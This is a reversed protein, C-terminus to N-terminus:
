PVGRCRRVERGGTDVPRRADARVDAVVQRLDPAGSGVIIQLQLPGQARRTQLLFERGRESRERAALFFRHRFILDPRAEVQAQELGPVRVKGGEVEGAEIGFLVVRAGEANGGVGRELPEVREDALQAHGSLVLRRAPAGKTDDGIVAEGSYRVIHVQVDRKEVGAQEGHIVLAPDGAPLGHGPRSPSASCDHQCIGPVADRPRLDARQERLEGVIGIVADLADEALFLNRRAASEGVCCEKDSEVGAKFETVGVVPGHDGPGGIQARVAVQGFVRLHAGREEDDARVDRGAMREALDVHAADRRREGANQM